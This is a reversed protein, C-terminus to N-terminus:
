SWSGWIMRQMEALQDEVENHNRNIYVCQFGKNEEFARWLEFAEKNVRWDIQLPPQLDMCADVLVQCDTSFTCCTIGANIAFRVSEQLARAESQLPCCDAISAEISTFIFLLVGKNKILFV